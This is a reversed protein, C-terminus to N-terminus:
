EGHSLTKLCSLGATLLEENKGEVVEWFNKVIEKDDKSTDFKEAEVTKLEELHKPLVEIAFQGQQEENLEVGAEVEIFESFGKLNVFSNGKEPKLLNALWYGKKKGKDAADRHINNGVLLFNPALLEASHIHGCYVFEFCKFREDNPDIDHPIFDLGLLKPTQHMLLYHKGEGIEKVREITNNLAQEFDNEYYPIGHIHIDMFFSYFNDSIVKFNNPMIAEMISLSHATRKHLMNKSHHDHNGDIALILIDPYKEKLRVAMEVLSIAVNIELVKPTDTLDGAFLFTKVDLLYCEDIIQEFGRISESLRHGDELNFKKFNGIHTDSFIAVIKSTNSM